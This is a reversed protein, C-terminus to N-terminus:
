MKKTPSAGAPPPAAPAAMVPAPDALPDLDAMQLPQRSVRWMYAVHIMEMAQLERRNPDVGVRVARLTQRLTSAPLMAFLTPSGGGLAQDM